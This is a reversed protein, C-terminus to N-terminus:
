DGLGNPWWLKPGEVAFSFTSSDTERDIEKSFQMVSGDPSELCLQIRASDRPCANIAVHGSVVAKTYDESVNTEVHMSEIRITDWAEIRVPQWIGSCPLYIGWDWGFSCQEKRIYERYNKQLTKDLTQDKFALRLREIEKEPSTIVVQLENKGAHASSSIDFRWTRFMNSTCGLQTGNLIIEATTDIGTFVLEVNERAIVEEPIDVTCSYTYDRPDEADSIDAFALM